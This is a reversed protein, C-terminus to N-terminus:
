IFIVRYLTIRQYARSGAHSMHVIQLATCKEDMVRVEVYKKKKVHFKFVIM